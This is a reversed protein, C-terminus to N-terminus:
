SRVLTGELLAQMIRFLGSSVLLSVSFALAATYISSGYLRVAGITFIVAVMVPSSNQVDMTRSFCSETSIELLFLVHFIAVSCIALFYILLSRSPDLLRGQSHAQWGVAAMAIGAILRPTFSMGHSLVAGVDSWEHLGAAVEISAMQVPGGISSLALCMGVAAMVFGSRLPLGITDHLQM